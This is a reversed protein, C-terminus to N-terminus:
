VFFRFRTKAAFRRPQRAALAEAELPCSAISIEVGRRRFARSSGHPTVTGTPLDTADLLGSDRLERPRPDVLQLLDHAASPSSAGSERRRSRQRAKLRGHASLM